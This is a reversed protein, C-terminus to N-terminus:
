ENIWNRDGLVRKKNFKEQNSKYYLAQRLAEANWDQRREGNAVFKLIFHEMFKEYNEGQLKLIINQKTLDDPTYNKPLEHLYTKPLYNGERNHETSSQEARYQETREVKQDIIDIEPKVVHNEHNNKQLTQLSDTPEQVFSTPEQVFSTPEQVFSTPELFNRTLLANLDTHRGVGARRCISQPTGVIIGRRAAAMLVIYIFLLQQTPTLSRFSPDHLVRVYLRVWPANDKKMYQFKEWNRVKYIKEENATKQESSM